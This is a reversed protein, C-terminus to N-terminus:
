PYTRWKGTDDVWGNFTLKSLIHDAPVPKFLKSSLEELSYKSVDEGLVKRDIEVLIGTSIGIYGFLIGEINNLRLIEQLLIALLMPHADLSLTRLFREGEENSFSRLYRLEIRFEDTTNKELKVDYSHDEVYGESIINHFERVVIFNRRLIEEVDLLEYHLNNLDNNALINVDMEPADLFDINFNEKFENNM